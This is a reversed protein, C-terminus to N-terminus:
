KANIVRVLKLISFVLMMTELFTHGLRLEVMRFLFKADRLRCYSHQEQIDGM